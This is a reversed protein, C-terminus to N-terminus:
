ATVGGHMLQMSKLVSQTLKPETVGSNMLIERFTQSEKTCSCCYVQSSYIDFDSDRDFVMEWFEETIEDVKGCFPCKSFIKLNEVPIEANDSKVFFM